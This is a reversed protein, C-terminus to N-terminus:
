IEVGTIQNHDCLELVNYCQPLQNDWLQRVSEKMNAKENDDKCNEILCREAIYSQLAM